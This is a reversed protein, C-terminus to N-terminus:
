ITPVEYYLDDINTEGLTIKDSNIALEFKFGESYFGYAYIGDM